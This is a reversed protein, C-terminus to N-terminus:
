SSLESSVARCRHQGWRGTALLMMRRLTVPCQSVSPRWLVPFCLATCPDWSDLALIWRGLVLVCPHFHPRETHLYAPSHM